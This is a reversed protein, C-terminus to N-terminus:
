LEGVYNRYGLYTMLLLLVSRSVCFGVFNGAVSVEKQYTLCVSDFCMDPLGVLRLGWILTGVLGRCQCPNWLM